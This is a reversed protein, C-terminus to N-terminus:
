KLSCRRTLLLESLIRSIFENIDSSVDYKKGIFYPPSSVFLDVLSDPMLPLTKLCDGNLIVFPAGGLLANIAELPDRFVIQSNILVKATRQADQPASTRNSLQSDCAPDPNYTCTANPPVPVFLHVSTGGQKTRWPRPVKCSRWCRVGRRRAERAVGWRRDRAM